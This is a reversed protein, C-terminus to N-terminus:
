LRSQLNRSNISFAQEERVHHYILDRCWIRKRKIILSDKLNDHPCIKALNAVQGSASRVPYFPSAFPLTSAENAQRSPYFSVNGFRRSRYWNAQNLSYLCGWLVFIGAKLEKKVIKETFVFDWISLFGGIGSPQGFLYSTMCYIRKWCCKSM